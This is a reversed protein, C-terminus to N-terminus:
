DHSHQHTPAYAPILMGGGPGDDDSVDETLLAAIVFAGLLAVALALM